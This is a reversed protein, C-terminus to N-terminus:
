RRPILLFQAFNAGLDGGGSTLGGNELHVNAVLFLDLGRDLSGDTLEALDVNQHIIGADGMVLKYQAHLARIPIADDIGVEGTRIQARLCHQARHHLLAPTPDDVDGADESLRALYALCIVCRRFRSQDPQRHRNRALHSGPVDGYIGDRRPENFRRHSSNQRVLQFTFDIGHNREATGPM